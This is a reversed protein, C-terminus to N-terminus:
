ACKTSSAKRPRTARSGCSTPRCTAHASTTTWSSVRTEEVDLERLLADLLIHTSEDYGFVVVHNVYDSMRFQEERISLMGSVLSSGVIGAFLALTFMGAVMVVAGVIRGLLTVPVVDGFGVTTLTVIAWWFGDGASNIAPNVRVELLFMSLGGVVTAVGLVSFAFTFLLGNEEFARLVIAFPNRYRFVRATRFLRLLRLARLGRLEPFLALVAVLDVLNLPRLLFRLRSFAHARLRGMPPRRFMATTRPRYSGVRLAIEVAFVILLARDFQRVVPDAASADPLLTEVFLMAISLVILAWVTGQVVRYARTSSEHFAAHVHSLLPPM